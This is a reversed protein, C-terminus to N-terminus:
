LVISPPILPDGTVTLAKCERRLFEIMYPVFLKEIGFHGADIVALGNEAMDIGDHHGIDGTIYVDAGSDIASKAMSKGSGPCIAAREVMRDTDGYLTVHDLHFREKVYRACEELTMIQPLKGVRGFGEVSIDDEYTKELVSRDKLGLEDAAADAMGIVDFNTHMAYLCVEHRILKMIKRAVFDDANVQKIPSFIMPHHTLIMNAGCSIARDVVSETADLAVYIHSVEQARAGVLLGVNDWEAAFRVPSLEELKTIVDQCKM